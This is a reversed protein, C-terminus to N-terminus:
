NLGPDDPAPRDAGSAPPVPIVGSPSPEPADSVASPRPPVLTDTVARRVSRRVRGPQFEALAAGIADGPEHIADRVEAQFSSSMARINGLFRGVSRAAGPLREPGLVVTALLALVFLKEPSLDLM